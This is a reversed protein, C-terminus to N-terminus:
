LRQECVIWGECVGVLGARSWDSPRCCCIVLLASVYMVPEDRGCRDISEDSFLFLLPTQNRSQILVGLSPYKICFVPRVPAAHRVFLRLPQIHIRPIHIGSHQSPLIWDKVTARILFKSM